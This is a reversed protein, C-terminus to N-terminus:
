NVERLVDEIRELYYSVVEGRCKPCFTRNYIEDEEYDYHEDITEEWEKVSMKYGCNSCPIVVNEYEYLHTPLPSMSIYPELTIKGTENDASTTVYHVTGVPAWDPNLRISDRIISIKILESM